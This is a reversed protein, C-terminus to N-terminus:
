RFFRDIIRVVARQRKTTGSIERERTAADLGILEHRAVVHRDNAVQFPAFPIAVRGFSDETDIRLFGVFYGIIAADALLLLLTGCEM